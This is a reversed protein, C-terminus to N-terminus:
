VGFYEGSIYMGSCYSVRVCCIYCNHDFLSLFLSPICLSEYLTETKERGLHRHNSTQGEVTHLTNIIDDLGDMM